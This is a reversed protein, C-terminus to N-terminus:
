VKGLRLFLLGMGEKRFWFNFHKFPKPGWDIEDGALLLPCHDSLMRPLGKQVCKFYDIWEVSVLFRDLKSWKENKQKNSWTFRRGVLPLDVLDMASIFNVFTRMGSTARTCGKRESIRKVENFDGGVVWPFQCSQKLGGLENFVEARARKENPAYINVIVCQISNVSGKICM